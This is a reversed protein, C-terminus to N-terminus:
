KKATLATNFTEKIQEDSLSKRALTLLGTLRKLLSEEDLVLPKSEEKKAKDYWKVSDIIKDNYQLPKKEDKVNAFELFITPKGNKDKGVKSKVINTTLKIYDLMMKKDNANLCKLLSLLPTSNYTLKTNYNAVFIEYATQINERYTKLGTKASKLYKNILTVIENQKTM